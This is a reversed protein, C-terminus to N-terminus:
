SCLSLNCAPLRPSMREWCKPGRFPSVYDKTTKLNELIAQAESKKGSQSLAYGWFCQTSTTTDGAKILSQYQAVAENYLGKGDYTYSSLHAYNLVDTTTAGEFPLRGAVMECLLAGVSWIDTCGSGFWAFDNSKM